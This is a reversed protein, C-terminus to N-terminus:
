ELSFSTLNHHPLDVSCFLCSVRSEVWTTLYEIRVFRRVTEKCSVALYAVDIGCALDSQARLDSTKDVHCELSM